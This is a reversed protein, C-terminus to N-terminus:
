PPWSTSESFPFFQGAGPTGVPRLDADIQIPPIIRIQLGQTWSATGAAAM